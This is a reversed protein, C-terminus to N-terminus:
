HLKRDKVFADQQRKLLGREILRKRNFIQFGICRKSPKFQERQLYRASLPLEAPRAGVRREIRGAVRRAEM